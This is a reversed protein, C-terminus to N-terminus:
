QKVEEEKGKVVAWGEEAGFVAGAEEGCPRVEADVPAPARATPGDNPFLGDHGHLHPTRSDHPIKSCPSPPYAPYSVLPSNPNRKLIHTQHIQPSVPPIGKKAM